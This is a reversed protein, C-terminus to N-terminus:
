EFEREKTYVGDECTFKTIKFRRLIPELDQRNSWIERPHYNSTVIIKLPRIMKSGGKYEAMFPYKDGWHKLSRVCDMDRIDFDDVLVVPEGNYHDFWKNAGKIYMHGDTKTPNHREWADHTKGCGADGYLWENTLESLPGLNKGLERAHHALIKDMHLFQVRADIEDFQGKKSLALQAQWNLKQQKGRGLEFNPKKGWEVYHGDEKCYNAAEEFSGRQEEIYGIGKLKKRVAQLSTKQKTYFYGQIHKRGTTPCIEKGMCTYQSIAQIKDLLSPDKEYGFITCVFGHGRCDKATGAKAKEPEIVEVEDDSFSLDISASGASPEQTAPVLVDDSGACGVLEGDDRRVAVSGEFNTGTLAPSPTESLSFKSRKIRPPTEIVFDEEDGPYSFYADPMQTPQTGVAMFRMNQVEKISDFLRKTDKKSREAVFSEYAKEAEDLNAAFSEALDNSSNSYKLTSTNSCDTVDANRELDIIREEDSDCM